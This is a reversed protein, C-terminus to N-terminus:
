GPLRQSGPKEKDNQRFSSAMMVALAFARNANAQM